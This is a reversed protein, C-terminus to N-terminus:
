FNMRIQAGVINVHADYTGKLGGRVQDEGTPDKDIQPDDVFLHAYGVDLSFMTSIRYGVGFATWIRDGDPIRPTRREANPIPTEDYALGVRFTWPGPKYTVGLSYRYSDEWKTTTVSDPQAQNDFKIRLENFVSWNTWTVDAMIMWEPNFEHFVSFSLTEPLTLNAKAGGDKFVPLPALGAPVDSFDVDGELTHRLRSRYSVGIRTSKIPQYLLGLNYGWAWDDGDVEAFGDSQQPTLRLGGPPIFPRFAGVADLTGFDIANSLKAKAYMANIGAGVSLKDTIKYGVAPNINITILESNIAHYRGVWDDNYETKLGFPAGVGLGFALRDSVRFSAYFNPVARTVGADASNGGLLPVGTRPQLVYTSGENHFKASPMVLHAAVIVQSGSLRTLGAPNFFITTADEASAAGGAYANGMSPVSQEILAFGSASAGTELFSLISLASLLAVAVVLWLRQRM